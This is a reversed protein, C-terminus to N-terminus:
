ARCLCFPHGAPDLMTVFEEGGFQAAARVAGLKEADRVAQELHEAQFDCHMQKQQRGEEEPCIPPVYDEEGAFLFLVGNGSRVGPLGFAECLEWGLLAGYFRQLEVADRCDIMINGLTIKQEM